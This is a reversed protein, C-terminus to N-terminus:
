VNRTVDSKCDLLAPARTGSKLVFACKLVFLLYEVDSGICFTRSQVISELSFVVFQYHKEYDVSKYWAKKQYSKGKRASIYKNLRIAKNQGQKDESILGPQGLQGLWYHCYEQYPIHATKIAKSHIYQYNSTSKYAINTWLVRPRSVKIPTRAAMHNDLHCHGQLM